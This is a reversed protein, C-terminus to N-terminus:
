NLVVRQRKDTREQLRGVRGASEVQEQLRGVKGIKGVKREFFWLPYSIGRVSRKELQIRGVGVMVVM